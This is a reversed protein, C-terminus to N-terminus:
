EAGRHKRSKRQKIEIGNVGAGNTRSSHGTVAASGISVAEFEVGNIVRTVVQRLPPAQACRSSCWRESERLPTFRRGCAQCFATGARPEEFAEGDVPMVPAPRAGRRQARPWEPKLGGPRANLSGFIIPAPGPKRPKPPPPKPPETGPTGLAILFPRPPRRQITVSGETAMAAIWDRLTWPNMALTAALEAVTYSREELLALLVSRDSM